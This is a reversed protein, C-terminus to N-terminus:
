RAPTSSRAPAAIAPVASSRPGCLFILGIMMLWALLSGAMLRVMFRRTRAILMPDPKWLSADVIWRVGQGRPSPGMPAWRFDDAIFGEAALERVFRIKREETFTDRSARIVVAGDASEVRVLTDLNPFCFDYAQAASTAPNV